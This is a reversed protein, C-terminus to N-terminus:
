KLKNIEKLIFEARKKWTYNRNFDALAQTALRSSLSPRDLLLKVSQKWQSLDEPDCLLANHDHQLIEQIVSLNSAIIPRCASMYEFVKLPSMWLALNNAGRKDSVKVTSTYPAILVNFSAIYGPLASQSKFGHFILNRSDKTEIKLKEVQLAEGGIVHFMINPFERSLPLLIEMGKGPYLSGVYGVKFDNGLITPTTTPFSDAGDPAVIISESKLKFNKEYYQRLANSIVVLKRLQKHKIIFTFMWRLRNGKGEFPEHVEFVIEKGFLLLFFAATISRTYLLDGNIILSRWLFSLNYYLGSGKFEKSPFVKLKFNGDVAYFAYLDKVNKFCATTNKGILTVEHGFSALAQSMKM